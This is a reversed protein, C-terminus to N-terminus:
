AFVGTDRLEEAFGQDVEIQHNPCRKLSGHMLAPLLYVRFAEDGAPEERQFRQRGKEKRCVIEQSNSAV